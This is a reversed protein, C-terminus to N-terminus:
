KSETPNCNIDLATLGAILTNSIRLVAKTDSIVPLLAVAAFPNSIDRLAKLHDEGTRTIPVRNTDEYSIAIDAIARASYYATPSVGMCSPLLNNVVQPVIDTTKSWKALLSQVQAVLDNLEVEKVTDSPLWLGDLRSVSVNDSALQAFIALQQFTATKQDLTIIDFINSKNCVDNVYWAIRLAPSYGSSDRPIIISDNGNHRHYHQVLCVSGGIANMLGLSVDPGIQLFPRLAEKWQMVSPMLSEAVRIKENGTAQLLLQVAENVLSEVRGSILCGYYCTSLLLSM